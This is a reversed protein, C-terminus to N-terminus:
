GLHVHELQEIDEWERTRYCNGCLHRNLGEAHLSDEPDEGLLAGCVCCVFISQDDFRGVQNPPLVRSSPGPAPRAGFLRGFIGM